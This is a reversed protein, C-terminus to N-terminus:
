ADNRERKPAKQLKEHYESAIEYMRTTDMILKGNKNLLGAIVQPDYKNKNLNFFYKTNKQGEKLYRTKAIKQSKKTRVRGNKNLEKMLKEIEKRDNKTDQFTKVKKGLKSKM